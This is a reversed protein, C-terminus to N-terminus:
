PGESTTFERVPLTKVRDQELSLRLQYRYVHGPTLGTLSARHATAPNESIVKRRELEPGDGYILEAGLAPETEFSLMVQDRGPVLTFASVRLETPRSIAWTWGGLAAVVLLAAGVVTATKWRRKEPLRLITHELHSASALNACSVRELDALLGAASPYRRLRERELCRLIVQEINGPLDPRLGTPAPIPESLRRTAAVYPNDGAFPIIGTAMQYLVLGLQYIDSRHDVDGGQIQEPSMYLPTGMLTGAQTLTKDASIKALGFDCLISQFEPTMLINSPKIDRHYIGKEHACRLADGVQRAVTMIEHLTFGTRKKRFREDMVERLTRSPRNEMVYFCLGEASGVDFIKIINPHDLQSLVKIEQKFRQIVSRDIDKPLIKVAVSRQEKEDVARYVTATGGEGLVGEIRYKWLKKGILSM